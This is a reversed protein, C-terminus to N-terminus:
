VLQRLGGGRLPKGFATTLFTLHESPTTNMVPRCPCPAVMESLKAGARKSAYKCRAVESYTTQGDACGGLAAPSRLATAGAGAAGQQGGCAASIRKRNAETWTHFGETATRVNKIGALAPNDKRYGQEVAFEMLWKIQRLWHKNLTIRDRM